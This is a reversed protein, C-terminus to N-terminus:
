CGNTFIFVMRVHISNLIKGIVSKKGCSLSNGNTDAKRKVMELLRYDFSSIHVNEMVSVIDVIRKILEPRESVTEKLEVNLALDHKRLIVRSRDIDSHQHGCFLRATNEEWESEQSKQM